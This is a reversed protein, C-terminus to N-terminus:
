KVKIEVVANQRFAFGAEKFNPARFTPRANNSFGYAEKPVGLANTNLKGDSNADHFVAIAYTGPPLDQLVVEVTGTRAAVQELKYAKNSDDPFGAEQNFVALLIKGKAASIGTVKVTLQQGRAAVSGALLAAIIGWVKM